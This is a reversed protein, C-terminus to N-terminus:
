KDVSVIKARHVPGERYVDAKLSRGLPAGTKNENCDIAFRLISPNKVTVCHVYLKRSLELPYRRVDSNNELTCVFDVDLLHYLGDGLSTARRWLGNWKVLCAENEQAEYPTPDLQGYRNCQQSIKELQPVESQLVVAISDSKAIETENVMYLKIAAGEPLSSRKLEDFFVPMDYVPVSASLQKAPAPNTREEVIDKDNEMKIHTNPLNFVTSIQFEETDILKKLFEYMPKTFHPVNEVSVEYTMCKAYKINPNQIEKFMKWDVTATNGIDPFIVTVNSADISKVVARYYASEFPAFVIDGLEPPNPLYEKADRGAKMMCKMYEIYPSPSGNLQNGVAYIYMTSDEVHSITVKEGPEPFASPRLFRKKAVAQKPRQEVKQENPVIACLISEEMYKASLNPVKSDESSKPTTTQKGREEKKSSSKQKTTNEMKAIGKKNRGVQEPLPENELPAPLYPIIPPPVSFDAKELPIPIEEQRESPRLPRPVSYSRKQMPLKANAPTNAINVEAPAITSNPNPAMPMQPRSKKPTPPRQLSNQTATTDPLNGLSAWFEPACYVPTAKVLRPLCRNNRHYQWDSLQCRVGCYLSGCICCQFDAGPNECFTCAMPVSMPTM